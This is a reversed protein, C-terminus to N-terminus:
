GLFAEVRPVFQNADQFLFAHGAGAYLVLRAGHIMGALQRDNAVPDLADLTGDAVLTPLRLDAVARGPADLGAFWETIAVTQAAKVAPPAAYYGPYQLIGDIYTIAASKQGPPFLVSLVAAPNTSGAAAAVAASPPTADGNGAQTAALVLRGVQSPHLVALAQAIMGGMSWGLVAPRGLGLSTILASVQNAMAAITLPRDLAATRGIGANDLLVVRHGAALADVFSPAWDDMTGGFGMILVVPSGRGVERYGVLGLSTQATQVPAEVVNVAAGTSGTSAQAPAASFASGPGFAVGSVCLAVLGGKLRRGWGSRPVRSEDVECEGPPLPRADSRAAPTTGAQHRWLGRTSTRAATM